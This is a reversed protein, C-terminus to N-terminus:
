QRPRPAEGDRWQQGGPRQAPHQPIPHQPVPWHPYPPPPVPPQQYGYPQQPSAPYGPPWQPRAQQAGPGPAAPFYANGGGGHRGSGQRRTILFIIVGVLGSLLLAGLGLGAFLGTGSSKGSANATAYASNGTRGAGPGSSAAGASGPVPGGLPNSKDAPAPAGLAKLPDIVGYGVHNDVRKGGGTVTNDIIVRIVQGATWDPHLGVILAAEASVWPAADSTGSKQTYQGGPAPVEIDVGPAAVTVDSGFHSHYDMKGNQAIAAVDIVGPHDAPCSPTNTTDADNGASAVVVVNKSLAYDLAAAEAPSCSGTGGESINIVRAGHDAAYRISATEAAATQVNNGTKVPMIKARSALGVVGQLNARNGHGHAAIIASVHTGHYESSHDDTDPTPAYPNTFDLGPVIQGQLDPQAPDVGSDAVAVVVGAGYAHFNDRIAQVHFASLAWEADFVPDNSAHAPLAALMALGSVGAAALATAALGPFGGHRDRM